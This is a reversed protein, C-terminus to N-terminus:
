APHGGAERELAQGAAILQHARTKGVAFVVGLAALSLQPHSQKYAWAFEARLAAVMADCQELVDQLATAHTFAKGPDQIRRVAADAAKYASALDRLLGAVDDNLGDTGDM